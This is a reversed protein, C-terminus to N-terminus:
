SLVKSYFRERPLVQSAFFAMILHKNAEFDLIAAEPLIQHATQWDDMEVNGAPGSPEVRLIREPGLLLGAQAHANDSTLYMAGKIVQQWSYIGGRAEAKSIIWPQDGTGISFIEIQDRSVNYASLADVVAAMVPNNAWVGGDIFMVDGHDHGHFYTPAAATARAIEWAPSRHDRQFDPHHDTKFVTIETKPIMFAPVVMRARCEGFTRDGFEAYLLRELKRYDYLVGFLLRIFTWRSLKYRLPPFIKKGGNIYLSEMRKAAIGLGAGIGLIGGTSTGAIMDFYKHIAGSEGLESEIRSLLAAGYIGKIGGGDLSLIKFPRDKPWPLQDRKKKRSNVRRDTFLEAGAKPQLSPALARGEGLATM